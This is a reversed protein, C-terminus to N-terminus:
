LLIGKKEINPITIDFKIFQTNVQVLLRKGEEILKKFSDIKTKILNIIQKCNEASTEISEQTKNAGERFDAIRTNIQQETLNPQYNSDKKKKNLIDQYIEIQKKHWANLNYAERLAAIDKNFYDDTKNPDDSLLLDLQTKNQTLSKIFYDLLNSRNDQKNIKIENLKKIYEQEKIQLENAEQAINEDCLKKYKNYEDKLMRELDSTSDQEKKKKEAEDKAIKIKKLEKIIAEKESIYEKRLASLEKYEKLDQPTLKKNFQLKIDIQTIKGDIDFFQKTIEKIANDYESIDLSETDPDPTEVFGNGENYKKYENIYKKTAELKKIEKNIADNDEEYNKQMVELEAYGVDGKKMKTLEGKVQDLGAANSKLQEEYKKIVNDYEPEDLPETELNFTEKFGFGKDYKKIRNETIYKKRKKLEEIEKILKKQEKEYSAKIMEYDEYNADKKDMASLVKNYEALETANLKLEEEYKKIANDYESVDLSETEPAPTEGFEYDKNYKKYKNEKTFKKTNELKKVEQLINENEDEYSKILDELDACGKPDKKRDKASLKKINKM